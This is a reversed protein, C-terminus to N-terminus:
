CASRSSPSAPRGRFADNVGFVISGYWDGDRFNLPAGPQTGVTISTGEVNTFVLTGSVSVTGTHGPEISAATSSTSAPGPRPSRPRPSHSSATSSATSASSSGGDFLLGAQDNTANGLIIKLADPTRWRSGGLQFRGRRRDRDRRLPARERGQPDLRLARHPRSAGTGLHCLRHYSATTERSLSMRWPRCGHSEAVDELPEEVLGGDGDHEAGQQFAGEVGVFQVSEELPGGGGLVGALQEEGRDDVQHAEDDAPDVGRDAGGVQGGEALDGGRQRGDVLLELPDFRADTAAEHASM